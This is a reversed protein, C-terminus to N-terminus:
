VIKIMSSRFCRQLKSSKCIYNYEGQGAPVFDSFVSSNRLTPQSATKVPSADVVEIVPVIMPADNSKVYDDDSRIYEIESDNDCDDNEAALTRQLDLPHKLVDNTDAMRFDFTM